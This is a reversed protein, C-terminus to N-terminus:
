RHAAVSTIDLVSATARGEAKNDDNAADGDAHKVGKAYEKSAKREACIADLTRKYDGFASSVLDKAYQVGFRSDMKMAETILMELETVTLGKLQDPTGLKLLVGNRLLGVEYCYDGDQVPKAKRRREPSRPVPLEHALQTDGCEAFVLATAVQGLTYSGLRKRCFSSVDQKLKARGVTMPPLLLPQTALCFARVKIRTEAHDLNFVDAVEDMWIEHGITPERFAVDGLWAIRPMIRMEAGDRSYDHRLGLANLRIIDEPTLPVGSSIAAKIDAIATPSVM